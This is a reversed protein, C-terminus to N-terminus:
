VGPIYFEIVTVPESAREQRIEAWV